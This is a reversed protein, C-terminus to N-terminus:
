DTDFTLELGIQRPADRTFVPLGGTPHQNYITADEDLLNRGFLYVGFRERQFGFRARLLSRADGQVANAGFQGWQDDLHNLTVNFHGQWGAGVSWVYNVAATM